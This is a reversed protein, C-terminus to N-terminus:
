IWIIRTKYIIIIIILNNAPVNERTVHNLNFTSGVDLQSYNTFAHVQVKFSAFHNLTIYEFMIVVKIHIFSFIM